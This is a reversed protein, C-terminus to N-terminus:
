IEEKRLSKTAKEKKLSRKKLSSLTLRIPPSVNHQIEPISAQKVEEEPASELAELDQAGTPKMESQNEGDYFESDVWQDKESAQEMNEPGPEKIPDAVPDIM